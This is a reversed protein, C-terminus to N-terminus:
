ALILASKKIDRDYKLTSQLSLATSKTPKMLTKDSVHVYITTLIKVKVKCYLLCLLAFCVFTIKTSCLHCGLQPIVRHTASYSCHHVHVYLHAQLQKKYLKSIINYVTAPIRCRCLKMSLFHFMEAKEGALKRM